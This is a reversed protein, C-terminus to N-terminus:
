GFARVVPAIWRSGRKLSSWLLRMGFYTLATACLADIWRFLNGSAYRRGWTVLASMGCGWILSGLMFAALLWVLDTTALDGESAMVGGGLGTWFALGAPNALSFTIGITLGSRERRVTSQTQAPGALAGRFASRALAFLFGAGVLGLLTSIADRQILVAAGTLGVVAWLFDGMLAGTQILWAPRFGGALGRRLSETNVAGPVASYALGLTLGTVLLPALDAM